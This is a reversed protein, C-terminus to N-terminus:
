LEVPWRERIGKGYRYLLIPIPLMAVSIGALVTNGKGVGLASYLPPGALPLFAGIISLATRVTAAASAAYLPYADVLYLQSAMFLGLMGAGFLSMGIIPSIWHVGKEATWGYWLLSVPLLTAYYFSHPMRFEPEFKGGNARTLRMAAADSTCMIVALAVLMGICLGTYALGTISTSWGYSGRFVDPITTFMLYLFGYVTAIYGCIMIAIPSKTLLKLPRVISTRLLTSQNDARALRTQLDERGTEKRLRAAKRALVIPAYSEPMFLLLFVTTAGAAMLLIWYAWRWGLGEAIFGGCIPGLAPGASQAMIILSMTFARREIPYMDAVIAPAITMVGSGGIGALFRMVILGPMNPALASGLLFADFVATSACVVIYRGYMESLPGLFLPGVAYGLVFITVSFSGIVASPEHLSAMTLATGPAVMSSALPKPPLPLYQPNEDDDESDWGVLGKDLDMLNAVEPSAKEEVPEIDAGREPDLDPSPSDRELVDPKEDSKM